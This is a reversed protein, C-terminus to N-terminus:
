PRLAPFYHRLAELSGAPGPATAVYGGARHVTDRVPPFADGPCAVHPTASGDLMPLDNAHDGIALVRAPEHSPHALWARLLHGKGVSAHLISMWAGNRILRAEPLPKLVAALGAFFAQQRPEDGTALFVTAEELFHSQAPAYAAILGELQTRCRSQLATQLDLMATRARTNWNEHPTYHDDRRLHIYCEGHLIAVPWHRLGQTQVTHHLIELQGALTRGSNSLWRIGRDGLTNLAAVIAPHLHEPPEEYRLITGDFDFCITDPHM